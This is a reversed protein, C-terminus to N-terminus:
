NLLTAKVLEIHNKKARLIEFRFGYFSFIQGPEPITKIEYFILGAITSANEDPLRWGFERNVDRITINGNLNYSGDKNKKAGIIQVDYEDEIDGVIEEIIDELTIVGSTGGYEDVVIALHIKKQQFEKLLDDLKKNEPVYLPEKLLKNWEFDKSKMNPLLDKVYLIGTIKDISEEYVPIRSFGMEIIKSIIEKISMFESLAFIDIRPCMVEKTDTNGFNVIGELIRQEDYSTENESTLELAQSLKDVSFGNNKQGLKSEFFSITKSMPITIWFFLYNDIFSIPNVLLKSFQFSNRNAYIKPLIEGFVLIVSTIFGVEIIFKITNNEVGKFFFDSISSFLLVIGINIFNNAVLITALLRKPKKLLKEIKLLAKKDQDNLKKIVKPNISFFAVESGSILASFLILFTLIVFEPIYTDM